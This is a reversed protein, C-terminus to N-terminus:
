VGGELRVLYWILGGAKIFDYRARMMGGWRKMSIDWDREGADRAWHRYHDYLVAAKVRQQASQEARLYTDAWLAFAPIEGEASATPLPLFAVMSCYKEFLRDVDAEDGGQMKVVEVATGMIRAKLRPKLRAMTGALAPTHGQATDGYRGHKRLSPLVTATVWKRFRKAEPKRSTFILAYLGSESVASVQQKGGPTDASIVGKEDDDLRTTAQRSNGLELVECVDKAVFWPADNRLVVRVADGDFDFPIVSAM